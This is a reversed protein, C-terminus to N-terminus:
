PDKRLHFQIINGDSSKLSITVDANSENDVFELGTSDDIWEDDPGFARFEVTVKKDPDSGKLELNNGGNSELDYTAGDASFSDEKRDADDAYGNKNNSNFTEFERNNGEDIYINDSISTADVSFATITLQDPGTHRIKFKIQSSQTNIGDSKVPRIFDVPNCTTNSLEGEPDIAANLGTEDRPQISSGNVVLTTETNNGGINSIYRIKQDDSGLFTLELEGDNDIDAPAIPATTAPALVTKSGGATIYALNSSGDILPIEVIGDGNLDAPPGFGTSNNSGLSGNQVKTITGDQSLYRLQQSSDAFVLETDGDCDIDAVGVVGGCGNSPNEIVETNGDSDIGIIKSKNDDASLILDEKDGGLDAPPWPRVAIRTKQKNLKPKNDKKIEADSSV